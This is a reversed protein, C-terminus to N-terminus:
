KKVRAAKCVKSGIHIRISNVRNQMIKGCAKCRYKNFGIQEFHEEDHNM